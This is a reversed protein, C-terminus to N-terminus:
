NKFFGLGFTFLGLVVFGVEWGFFDGWVVLLQFHMM